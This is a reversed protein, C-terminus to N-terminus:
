DLPMKIRKVGGAKEWAKYRHTAAGFAIGMLEAVAYRTKGADFLRYCIEIGRETLKMHGGVEHKNAPDRPDFEVHEKAPEFAARLRAVGTVLQELATHIVELASHIEENIASPIASQTNPM